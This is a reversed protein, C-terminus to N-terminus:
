IRYHPSDGPMSSQLFRAQSDDRDLEYRCLPCTNRSKTLWSEVCDSHFFHGCPLKSASEGMEFDSLCITCSDVKHAGGDCSACTQTKINAKTKSGGRTETKATHTSTKEHQPPDHKIAVSEAVEGPGGEGNDGIEDEKPLHSAKVEFKVLRQIAAESAPRPSFDDGLMPPLWEDHGAFDSLNPPVILEPASEHLSPNTFFADLAPTM